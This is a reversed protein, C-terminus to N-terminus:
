GDKLVVDDAGPRAGIYKESMDVSDGGTDALPQLLM